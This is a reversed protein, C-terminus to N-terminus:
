LLELFAHMLQLVLVGFEVGLDNAASLVGDIVGQVGWGVEAAESGEGMGGECVREHLQGGTGLTSGRGLGSLLFDDFDHLRFLPLLAHLLLVYGQILKQLGVECDLVPTREGLLVFELKAFCHHLQRAVLVLGDESEECGDDLLVALLGVEGFVAGEVVAEGAGEAAVEVLLVGPGEGFEVALEVRAIVAM